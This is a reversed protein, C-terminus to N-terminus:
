ALGSAEGPVPDLPTVTDVARWCYWAAVSRWPRFPEGLGELDKAPPAAALGHIVAYGRRVGLDGSPWVDLRQLRFMLFMQATWRGIGRVESLRAIVDEDGLGAVEDLDLRGSVVRRALDNLSRAKAASLGAGRLAAPDLGVVTTADFGGPALARVRAWIAAAARGALQQSVIASALAELHSGATGRRSALTCPGRGAILAALAPHREALATEAAAIAAEDGAESGFTM